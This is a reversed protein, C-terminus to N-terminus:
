SIDSVVWEAHKSLNKEDEILTILTGKLYVKGLVIFLKMTKLEIM